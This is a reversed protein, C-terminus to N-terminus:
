FETRAERKSKVIEGESRNEKNPLARRLANTKGM